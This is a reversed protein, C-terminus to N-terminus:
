PMKSAIIYNIEIFKVGEESSLDGGPRKSAGHEFKKNVKFPNKNINNSM